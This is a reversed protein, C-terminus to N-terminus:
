RRRGDIRPRHGPPAIGRVWRFRSRTFRGGRRGTRVIEAVQSGDLTEFELLSNAILELKDRSNDIIDKATKYSEDIIRKVEADIERAHLDDQVHAPLHLLHLLLHALEHGPYALLQGAGRLVAQSPNYNPKESM